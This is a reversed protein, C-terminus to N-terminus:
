VQAISTKIRIVAASITAESTNAEAAMNKSFDADAAMTQLSVHRVLVTTGTM